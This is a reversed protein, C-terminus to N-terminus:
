RALWRSTPAAGMLVPMADAGIGYALEAQHGPVTQLLRNLWGDRVTGDLAVGGAELLDQGDFHSRKDRYPTSVAPVVGLEGASWLPMLPALSPHFGWFGGTNITGDTSIGSRLGAFDPDGIPRFADIGDMAGRLIIVVLRNDWPASAFAAPTLVPSAALSCGVALGSKLFHRRQM